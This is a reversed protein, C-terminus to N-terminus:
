KNNEIVREGQCLLIKDEPYMRAAERYASRAIRQNAARALVEYSSTSNIRVIRFPLQDTM